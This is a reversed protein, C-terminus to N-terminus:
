DMVWAASRVQWSECCLMPRYSGSHATRAFDELAVWDGAGAEWSHARQPLAQPLTLIPHDCNTFSRQTTKLAVTWALKTKCLGSHTTM